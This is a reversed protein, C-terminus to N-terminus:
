NLQVNRVFLLVCLTAWLKESWIYEMVGLAAVCGYFKCWKEHCKAYITLPAALARMKDLDIQKCENEKVKKVINEHKAKLFSQM